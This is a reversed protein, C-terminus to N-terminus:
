KRSYEASLCNSSIGCIKVSRNMIEPGALMRIRSLLLKCLQDKSIKLPEGFHINLVQTM